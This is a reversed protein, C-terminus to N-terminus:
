RSDCLRASMTDIARPSAGHGASFYQRRAGRGVSLGSRRWAGRPPRRAAAVDFVLQAGSIPHTFGLREAHLFPRSVPLSQRAGKYRDDGVVPHEIAALHVRIQHTRGTELRCDLLSVDVPEHFEQRVDYHTRADRGRASVAMRTPSRPSRGIPADIMGSKAEFTGWVLTVYQRQVEHAALAAFSRTTRAPRGHWWCCVRHERTSAICSGPGEPTASMPSRPTGPSCDTPWPATRAAPGQIFWSARRSTSWSWTPIRTSSVSSSARSGAGGNVPAAVPVDLEIEDGTVLRHTKISVPEGNVRVEGAAVLRAAESRSVGALMSVVRDLREGDLAGPIEEIVTEGQDDRRARRRAPRGTGARDARPLHRLGALFGGIVVCSDAVNFVPWWQLDIFDIVGGNFFGDGRFARDALNGLAGGLILGLAVAGLRSNIARGQWLLFVVVGLALIAILPGAGGALSFAAGTNTTVALRLTWIVDIPDGPLREIAWAKTLQDVALATAAVVALLM